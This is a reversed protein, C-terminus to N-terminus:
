RSEPAPGRAEANLGITVALFRPLADRLVQLNPDAVPILPRRQREHLSRLAALAPDALVSRVAQADGGLLVADLTDVEPLLLESADQAARDFAQDAQNGRRRAYRQQSWGGAKTRGQVYHRGVRHRVLKSGDFIGVAHSNRRVLLAGVRRPRCAEAVLAALPDEASPRGWPSELWARAGDPSVLEVADPTVTVQPEPHRQAFGALWRELREPAVRVHHVETM